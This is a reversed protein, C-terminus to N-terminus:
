DRLELEYKKPTIGYKKKFSAIFNSPKSYGISYAIDNITHNKQELMLIAQQMRHENLYAYITNGYIDKFGNKLKFENIGSQKALQAITPPDTMNDLLIQKAKRICKIDDPNDLFPCDLEAEDDMAAHSFYISFIELIKGNLYMKKFHVDLNYQIIQHLPISLSGPISKLMYLKKPDYYRSLEERTITSMDLNANFFHHMREITTLLVIAETQCSINMKANLPAYPHSIFISNGRELFVPADIGHFQIKVKGQLTFLLIVLQPHIILDLANIAKETPGINLLGLNEDILNSQLLKGAEAPKTDFAIALNHKIGILTSKILGTELDIKRNTM